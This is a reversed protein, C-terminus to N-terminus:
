SAYPMPRDRTSLHAQPYYLDLEHLIDGPTGEFEFDLIKRFTAASIAFDYANSRLKSSEGPPSVRREIEVKTWAAVDNACEEATSNYSALNYCMGPGRASELIRRIARVVDGIWLIPRHPNGGYLVVKEETKATHYMANLMLDTRLNMSGGCVTGMRLGWYNRHCTFKLAVDAVQKSLDYENLPPALLHAESAVDAGSAGYVSSTSAYILLQERRLAGILRVLNEVNNRMASLIERHCMKVSGHAAFVIVADFDHTMQRVQESGFDAHLNSYPLTHEMPFWELDVSVVEHGEQHLDTGVRSGIYGMGGIIMIRM